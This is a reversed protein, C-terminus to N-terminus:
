SVMERVEPEDDGGDDGDPTTPATEPHTSEDLGLSEWPEDVTEIEVTQVSKQDAKLVRFIVHGWSIESGVEPVTGSQAMLFGGLSEYDPHEPLELGCFQEIEDIPVRADVRARYDDVRIIQPRESDYEDQIDGFFEEIIDELTILGATGGFEDVVVAMHMREAQFESLLEAIGKSEPVFYPERIFAQLDFEKEDGHSNVMRILDKAYFLGQIEDLNDEYVPIRSHGCDVLIDVITDLDMDVSLAVMDTRPVMVERVITDPFEFVSRLLREREESFSGERSGLDVLYEIEEATVYSFHESTDEGLRNMFWRTLKTFFITAPWFVYYPVRLAWMITGSLRVSWHKAISKPTIEGFTLLLFTMGGTAIAIAGSDFVRHALDTALASGAVNFLNNGILIATLVQIPKDRWLKLAAAGEDEILKQIEPQSLSTLATESGSFFASGFLCILIAIADFLVPNL